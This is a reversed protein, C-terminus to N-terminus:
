CSLTTAVLSHPHFYRSYDKHCRKLSAKIISKTIIIERESDIHTDTDTNTNTSLPQGLDKEKRRKKENKTKRKSKLLVKNNTM